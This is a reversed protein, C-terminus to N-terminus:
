KRSDTLYRSTLKTKRKFHFCRIIKNLGGIRSKFGEAVVESVDKWFERAWERWFVIIVVIFGCLGKHYRQKLSVFWVIELM